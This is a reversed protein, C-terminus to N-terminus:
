NAISKLEYSLNKIDFKEAFQEREKTRKLQNNLGFFINQEVNKPSHCCTIIDPGAYENLLKRSPSDANSISLIPIDSNLYKILKSSIYVDDVGDIDVDILFNAREILLNPDKVFSRIEINDPVKNNIFQNSIVDESTGLFLFKFYPIIKQINAIGHLLAKGNRQSNLNGLFLAYNGPKSQYIFEDSIPNYVVGKKQENPLEHYKVLYDLMVKNTASFSNANAFYKTVSKGVAKSLVPAVGWCAPSPIADLTHLHYNTDLLRAVKYGLEPVLHSQGAAVVFIKQPKFDKISDLNKQVIRKM